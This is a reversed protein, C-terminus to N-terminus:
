FMLEITCRQVCALMVCIEHTLAWDEDEEVWKFANFM